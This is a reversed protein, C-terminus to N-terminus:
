VQLMLSICVLYKCALVINRLRTIPAVVESHSQEFILAWNVLTTTLTAYGTSVRVGQENKTSIISGANNIAKNNKTYADVVTPYQKAVFPLTPNGSPLARDSHRYHLTSNSQPPLLFVVEETAVTQPQGITPKTVFLNNSAAPGVLLIEGTTDLGEPSNVINYLMRADIVVTLYGLIDTPINNNIMAVTLSLLSFTRNVAWPGIVLASELSLEVNDYYARSDNYTSNVVTRTYTLNPYLNPPYGPGPDGLYVHSGNAYTTPLKITDMVQDGTVNVLGGTSGPGTDDRPFIIAQMLLANGGSGVLASSLDSQSAAWNDVTDNGGQM